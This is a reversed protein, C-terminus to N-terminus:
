SSLEPLLDVDFESVKRIHCRVGCTACADTSLSLGGHNGTVTAVTGRPITVYGNILERTTRVKRGVWDRKLKPTVPDTDSV